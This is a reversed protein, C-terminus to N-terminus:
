LLLWSALIVLVFTKALWLGSVAVLANLSKRSMAWGTLVVPLLFGAWVKFGVRMADGFGAVKRNLLFTGFAYAFLLLAVAAVVATRGNGGGGALEERVKPFLYTFWAWGIGFTVIAGIIVYATM